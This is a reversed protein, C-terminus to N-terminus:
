QSKPMPAWCEVALGPGTSLLILDNIHGYSNTLCLASYKTLAMHDPGGLIHLPYLHGWLVIGFSEKLRGSLLGYAAPGSPCAQHRPGVSRQMGIMPFVCIPLTCCSCGTPELKLLPSVTSCYPIEQRYQEFVKERLIEALFFREPRESVVEQLRM